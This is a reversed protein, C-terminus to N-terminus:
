SPTRSGVAPCHDVCHNPEHNPALTGITQVTQCVSAVRNKHTFMEEPATRSTVSLAPVPTPTRRPNGRMARRGENLIGSRGTLLVRGCNGTSDLPLSRLQQLGEERRRHGRIEQKARSVEDRPLIQTRELLPITERHHAVVARCNLTALRSVVYEESCPSARDRGSSFTNPFPRCSAARIYGLRASLTPTESRAGPRSAINFDSSAHGIFLM